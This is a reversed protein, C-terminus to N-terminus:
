AGAAQDCLLIVGGENQNKAGPVPRVTGYRPTGILHGDLEFQCRLVYGVPAPILTLQISVVVATGDFFKVVLQSPYPATTALSAPVPVDNEDTPPKDGTYILHATVIMGHFNNRVAKVGPQGPTGTFVDFLATLIHEVPVAVTTPGHDPVPEPVRPRPPAPSCGVLALVALAALVRRTM